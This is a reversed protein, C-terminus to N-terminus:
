EHDTKNLETILADAHEVAIEAIGRINGEFRPDVFSNSLMGQMAMAAFMERKTLNISYVEVKTEPNTM